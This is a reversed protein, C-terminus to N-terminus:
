QPSSLKKKEKYSYIFSYNRGTIRHFVSFFIDDDQIFCATVMPHFLGMIPKCKKDLNFERNFDLEAIRVGKNNFILSKLAGNDNYPVCFVDGAYNQQIENM